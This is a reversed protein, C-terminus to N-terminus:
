ELISIQECLFKSLCQLFNSYLFLSGCRSQANELTQTIAPLGPLSIAQNCDFYLIDNEPVWDALTTGVVAYENYELISTSTLIKDCFSLNSFISMLELMSVLLCAQDYYCDM